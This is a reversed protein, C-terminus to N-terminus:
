RKVTYWRRVVFKKQGGARDKAYDDVPVRERLTEDLVERLNRIKVGGQNGELQQDYDLRSEIARDRDLVIIVHGEWV